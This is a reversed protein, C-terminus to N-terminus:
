KAFVDNGLGVFYEGSRRLPLVMVVVADASTARPMLESARPMLESARPM